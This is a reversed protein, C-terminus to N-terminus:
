RSRDFRALHKESCEYSDCWAIWVGPKDPNEAIKMVSRRVIDQPDKSEPCYSCRLDMGRFHECLKYQVSADQFQDLVGCYECVGGRVEPLRRTYPEARLGQRELQIAM